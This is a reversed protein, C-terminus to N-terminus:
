KIKGIECIDFFYAIVVWLATQLNADDELKKYVKEYTKLLAVESTYKEEFSKYTDQIYEGVDSFLDLGIQPIYEEIIEQSKEIHMGFFNFLDDNEPINIELKKIGNPLFIEKSFNKFDITEIGRITKEKSLADVVSEVKEFDGFESIDKDANLLIYVRIRNTPLLDIIEDKLSTSDILKITYDRNNSKLKDIELHIDNPIDNFKDNVVFHWENFDWGYNKAREFNSNMKEIAKTADVKEPAYIQLLLKGSLYGDNAGDGKSGQPKVGLLDPYKLKYAGVAFTEFENGNKKYFALELKDTLDM